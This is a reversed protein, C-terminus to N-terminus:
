NYLSITIKRYLLTIIYHNNSGWRDNGMLNHYCILALPVGSGGARIRHPFLQMSVSTSGCKPYLIFGGPADTEQLTNTDDM